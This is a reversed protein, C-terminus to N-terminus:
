CCLDDFLQCIEMYTLGNLESGFDDIFDQKMRSYFDDLELGDMTESPLNYSFNFWDKMKQTPLENNDIVKFVNGKFM